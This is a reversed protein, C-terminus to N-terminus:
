RALRAARRRRFAFLGLGLLILSVVGILSAALPVVVNEDKYLPIERPTVPASAAAPASPFTLTGEVKRRLLGSRLELTAKWPGAPLSRDLLVTVPATQGIGLATGLTADFPGAALSGPGETLRLSGAMDLARGGTNHVKALVFPRGSADRAATLSDVSFDSAPEGGPGVSLYVRIGARVAVSVGRDPRAPREAVVAGYYEGAAADRPVRFTATVTARAGPALHLRSPSVTTWRPVQGAAGQPGIAFQGDTITAPAPYVLLDAAQKDGNSVEVHRTFTAGPKVQDVVYVRARPDDSRETPADLLRVGVGPPPPTDAGAPVAAVLVALLALLGTRRM